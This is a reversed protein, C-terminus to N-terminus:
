AEEVVYLDSLEDEMMKKIADRVGEVDATERVDGFSIEVNPTIQKYNVMFERSAVDKLMKIDEDSINVEDLKGGTVNVPMSDIGGLGFGNPDFNNNDQNAQNLADMNFGSLMDDIKKGAAGGMKAGFSAADTIDMQELKDMVKYNDPKDGLWKYMSQQMGSVKGALNSGFIKDIVKAVNKATELVTDLLSVFLKKISYVPNNFVNAFFEVFSVIGNYLNVVFLNYIYAVVGGIIAGIVEGVAEFSGMVIRLVAVVALLALVIWTVPSALMAANLGWQAAASAATAKGLLIQAFAMAYQVATTALTIGKSIGLVINYLAIAGVVGLIIPGLWSWNDMMFTFVGSAIELMWMLGDIILFIGNIIGALFNQFEPSNFLVFFKEMLEQIKPLIMPGVNAITKNINDQFATTVESFTQPITAFKSEIDDSAAFMAEKIMDSTIKGEAALERLEGMGIGKMKAIAQTVMPMNEAVSNFEDGRLAGAALGQTLQRMAGSTDQGSAGSIKGAKTLLESFRILEDNTKFSGGALLGIKSISDATDSYSVRSRKASEEIKRQLELNTQNGDNILKLRAGIQAYEDSTKMLGSLASMGSKLLGIAQNAVVIAKSWGGFSNTTQNAKDTVQQVSNSTGKIKSDYSEWQQELKTQKLLLKDKQRQLKTVEQTAANVAKKTMGWGNNYATQVGDVVKRQAAEITKIQSTVRAQKDEVLGMKDAMKQTKSSVGEMINELKIGTNGLKDGAIVTKDIKQVIGDFVPSVRDSMTIASNITAM